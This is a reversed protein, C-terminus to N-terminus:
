MFIQLSNNFKNRCINTTASRILKLLKNISLSRKLIYIKCHWNRTQLQEIDKMAILIIDLLIRIMGVLGHMIQIRGAERFLRTNEQCWLVNGKKGVLSWSWAKKRTMFFALNRGVELVKRQRSVGGRCKARRSRM